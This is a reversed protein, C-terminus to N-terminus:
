GGQEPESGQSRKKEMGTARSGQFWLRFQLLQLNGSVYMVQPSRYEAWKLSEQNEDKFHGSLENSNKQSEVAKLKIIKKKKKFRFGLM